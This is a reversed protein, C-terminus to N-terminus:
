KYRDTWEFSIKGQLRKLDAITHYSGTGVQKIRLQKYERYIIVEWNKLKTHTSQFTEVETDFYAEEQFLFDGEDLGASLM